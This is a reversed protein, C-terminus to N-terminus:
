LTKRESIMIDGLNVKLLIPNEKGTLSCLYENFSTDDVETYGEELLEKLLEPNTKELIESPWLNYYPHLLVKQKKLFQSYTPDILIYKLKDKYLYSAIIAIHEKIGLLDQTNFLSAEIGKEELSALINSSVVKCLGELTETYNEVKSLEEEIVTKIISKIEKEELTSDKINLIRYYFKELDM